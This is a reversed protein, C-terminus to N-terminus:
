VAAIVLGDQRLYPADAPITDDARCILVDRYRGRSKLEVGHAVVCRDLEVGRAIRCDDWVASDRVDGEVVSRAGITSRVARGRASEAVICDGDVRSGKAPAVEGRLTADLLHQTAGM